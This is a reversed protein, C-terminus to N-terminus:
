KVAVRELRANGADRAMLYVVGPGFGVITKARPVAVRDVLVGQRNVIDYVPDPTRTPLRVRIWVNNDGDARVSGSLADIAPMYDPIDKPHVPTQPTPRAIVATSLLSLFRPDPAGSMSLTSTLSAVRSAQVSDGKGNAIATSDRLWRDVSMSDMMRTTRNLSDAIRTKDDDSNRQWEHAIRSSSTRTGDVNIWEIRYDRGRVVAVSGDTMLAWGDVVRFQSAMIPPRDTSTGTSTVRTLMGRGTTIAALTDSRHTTLNYAIVRSTDGRLVVTDPAGPPPRRPISGTASPPSEYVLGVSPSVGPFGYLNSAATLYLYSNRGPLPTVRALNGAPDIVVLAQATRDVFLTSDALHPLLGGSGAGYSNAKGGASDVVVTAKALSADLSVIQRSIADNVLVRGDSLPRVTTITKFITPSTAQVPGLPRVSVAVQPHAPRAAALTACACIAAHRWFVLVPM